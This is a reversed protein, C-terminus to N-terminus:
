QHRLDQHSDRADVTGFASNTATVAEPAVPMVLLFAFVGVALLRCAKWGAGLGALGGRRYTTHM